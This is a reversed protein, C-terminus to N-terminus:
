RAAEREAHYIKEILKQEERELTIRDDVLGPKTQKKSLSFMAKEEKALPAILAMIKASDGAHDESVFQAERRIEFIRKIPDADIIGKVKNLKKEVKSLETKLARVIVDM